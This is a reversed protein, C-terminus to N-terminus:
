CPFPVHLLMFRGARNILKAKAALHRNSPTKVGKLASSQSETVHNTLRFRQRLRWFLIIYLLLSGGEALFIRHRM